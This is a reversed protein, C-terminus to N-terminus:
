ARLTLPVSTQWHGAEQRRIAKAISFISQFIRIEDPTTKLACRESHQDALKRYLLAAKKSTKPVVKKIDARV